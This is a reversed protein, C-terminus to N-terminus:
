LHSSGPHSAPILLTQNGFRDMSQNLVAKPFATRLTSGVRFVHLRSLAYPGSVATIKLAAESGAQQRGKQPSDRSQWGVQRAALLSPASVEVFQSTSM